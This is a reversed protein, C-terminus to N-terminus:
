KRNSGQEVKENLVEALIRMRMQSRQDDSLNDALPWRIGLARATTLTM